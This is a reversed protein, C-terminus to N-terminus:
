DQTVSRDVRCGDVNPCLFFSHSFLGFFVIRQDWQELILDQELKGSNSWKVGLGNSSYNSEIAAFGFHGAKVPPSLTWTKGGM